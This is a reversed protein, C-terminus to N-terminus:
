EKANAEIWAIAERPALITTGDDSQLHLWDASAAVLIGSQKTGNPWVLTVSRRIFPRVIADTSSSIAAPVAPEASPAPEPPPTFAAFNLEIGALFGSHLIQPQTPKGFLVLGSDEPNQSLFAEIEDPPMVMLATSVADARAASQCLTWAGIKGEVQLGSRPDVIHRGQTQFGSGGLAANCLPVVGLTAECDPDRPDRLGVPWGERGLPTGLAACSSSGSHALANEISWERLIALVRDIAYGKGLAGFDIAIGESLVRVVGHAADIELLPEVPLFEPGAAEGARIRDMARGVMVDFAGQTQESIENALLLCDLAAPGIRVEDGPSAANLRAVDSGPVFRSIQAEILDVEDWAAFAAQRAYEADQGAIFIEWDCNMAVHAFRHLPAVISDRDLALTPNM